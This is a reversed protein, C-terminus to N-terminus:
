ILLNRLNKNRDRHLLLVSKFFRKLLAKDIPHSHLHNHGPSANTNTSDLLKMKYSLFYFNLSILAQEPLLVGPSFELDAVEGGGLDGAM